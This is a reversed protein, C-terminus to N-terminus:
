NLFTQHIFEKNIPKETFAIVLPNAKAREIDAPDISSSLIYIDFQNKITESFTEFKDLFEWGSLVPMNLDLFITIKEIPPQNQFETEIYELALEPNLFVMLEVEGLSKKLVFKSLFNNVPDDDIVIFRKITNTM